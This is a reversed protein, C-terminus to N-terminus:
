AYLNKNELQQHGIGLVLFVMGWWWTQWLGISFLLHIQAAAFLAINVRSFSLFNFTTILWLVAGIFGLELWLQLIYNHPHTAMYSQAYEIKSSPDIYTFNREGGNVEKESSTAFGQGALPNLSTSDATDKWIVLRHLYSPLDLGYQKNWKFVDSRDYGKHMLIPTGLAVAILLFRTLFQISKRVFFFHYGFYILAGVSYALLGSDCGGFVLAMFTVAGFICKYLMSRIYHIGLISILSLSLAVKAYLREKFSAKFQSWPSGFSTDVLMILAAVIAGLFLAALIKNRGKHDTNLYVFGMMVIAFFKLFAKFSELPTVSWICSFGAWLLFLGPCLLSRFDFSKKEFSCLMAIGLLIPSVRPYFFTLIPLLFYTLKLISERINVM